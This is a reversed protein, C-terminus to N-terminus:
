AFSVRTPRRRRPRRVPLHAPRLPTPLLAPARRRLDATSLLVGPLVAGGPGTTRRVRAHVPPLSARHLLRGRCRWRWSCVLVVCDFVAFKAGRGWDLKHRMHLTLCPATPNKIDM